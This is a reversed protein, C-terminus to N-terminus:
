QQLFTNVRIRYPTTYYLIDCELAYLAIFMFFLILAYLIYTNYNSCFRLVM